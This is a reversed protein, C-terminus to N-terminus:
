ATHTARQPCHGTAQSAKKTTANTATIPPLVLRQYKLLRLLGQSFAFGWVTFDNDKM